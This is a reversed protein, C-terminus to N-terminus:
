QFDPGCISTNNYDFQAQTRTLVNSWDVMSHSWEGMVM